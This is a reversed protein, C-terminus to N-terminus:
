PPPPPTSRPGLAAEVLDGIINTARRLPDSDLHAYRATTQPQSHGLLRGVIPLGLSAGAGVSAFTHRLDHLRVDDLGARRRIADWPRKLDSRPQGEAAGAIVFSAGNSASGSLTRRMAALQDLVAAASNNLVITKRGTKSDSLFLLGRELDVDRWILHLIERLRAGTFLLLRIAAIAHPDLVERRDRWDKALHKARPASPDVVWPIGITEAETLAAGLRQLEDGTLYRERAEERFKEIGRAPNYGEAVLGRKAAFTYLSGIVALARNARYPIDALRDHLSAVDGRTIEEAPKTGLAPTLHRRLLGEYDVLTRPKRKLRVHDRLFLDGLEAFTLRDRRRANELRANKHEVAPDRGTAVQGLIIKAQDRAQDPTLDGHRGVKVFRRPGDRGAGKPRYRVFYTKTGSPEVQLGFGKLEGDWLCYRTQKSSAQDVVRKTLKIRETAM